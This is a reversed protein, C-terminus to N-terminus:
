AAIARLLDTATVIGVLEGDAVVPLPKAGRDVILRAAESVSAHEDVVVARGRVAEGANVAGTAGATETATVVGLVRGDSRVVPLGSIRWEGLLRHAEALSTQPGVAVVDETMVDRVKM